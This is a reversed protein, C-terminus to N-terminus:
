RRCRATGTRSLKEIKPPSSKQSHRTAALAQTIRASARGWTTVVRTRRAATSRTTSCSPEVEIRTVSMGPSRQFCDITNRRVSPSVMRQSPSRSAMVENARMAVGCTRSVLSGLVKKKKM